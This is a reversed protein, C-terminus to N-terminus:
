VKLTKDSKNTDIGLNISVDITESKVFSKEKFKSQM